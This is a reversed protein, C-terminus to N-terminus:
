RPDRAQLTEFAENNLELGFEEVMYWIDEPADRIVQWLAEGEHDGSRFVYDLGLPAKQTRRTNM